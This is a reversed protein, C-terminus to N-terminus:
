STRSGPLRLQFAEDFRLTEIVEDQADAIDLEGTLDLLGGSAESSIISRIGKLAEDRAVAEDPLERGEEDRIFGSGNRIHFYYRPM